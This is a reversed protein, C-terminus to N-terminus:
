THAGIASESRDPGWGLRFPDNQFHLSLQASEHTRTALCRANDCHSVIDQRPHSKLIKFYRRLTETDRKLYNGYLGLRVVPIDNTAPLIMKDTAFIVDLKRRKLQEYDWNHVVWRKRWFKLEVRQRAIIFDAEDIRDPLPKCGLKLISSTIYQICSRSSVEIRKRDAYDILQNRWGLNGPNSTKIATDSGVM